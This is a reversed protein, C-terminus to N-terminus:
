GDSVASVAGQLLGGKQVRAEEMGVHDVKHVIQSDTGHQTSGVCLAQLARTEHIKTRGSSEIVHIM